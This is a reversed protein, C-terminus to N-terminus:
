AGSKNNTPITKPTTIVKKKSVVKKVPKIKKLDFVWERCLKNSRRNDVKQVKKHCKGLEYGSPPTYGKLLELIHKWMFVQVPDHARQQETVSVCITMKENKTDDKIDIKM